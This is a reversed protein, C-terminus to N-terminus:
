GALGSNADTPIPIVSIGQGSYADSLAYVATGDPSVALWRLYYGVFVTTVVKNTSADIVSVTGDGSNATYVFKGDPSVVVGFPDEGVPVATRDLTALDLVTLIGDEDSNTVYLRRGDPSLALGWAPGGAYYAHQPYFLATNVAIVDDDAGDNAFYLYDGDPSVVMQLGINADVINLISNTEADIVYIGRARDAVYVRSGDPSVIVTEPDGSLPITARVEQTDTDIVLLSSTSLITVYLLTGDPSFAVSAPTRGVDINGIVTKTAIDVISVTGDKSNAVYMQKGDLSFAIDSGNVDIIGTVTNSLPKPATPVISIIKVEGGEDTDVFAHTGDGSFAVFNAPLARSVPINGTVANTSTDLVTVTGLTDVIYARRGDPSIEIRLPDGNVRITNAIANTSPDIVTVINSGNSIVYARGTVPNVAIDFPDADLAMTNLIAGTDTDFITLGGTEPILSLEPSIDLQDISYLKKGDPSVAIDFPAIFAPHPPFDGQRSPYEDPMDFNRTVVGTEIDIAVVRPYSYQAVYLTAGDPSIAIDTAYLVPITRTITATNTDIVAVHDLNVTVYVHAGDPSLVMDRPVGGLPIRAIEAGHPDTATDIISLSAPSNEFNAQHLVYVRTGDSNAVIPGPDGTGRLYGIVADDPPTVPATVSVPTSATGDSGVITFTVQKVSPDAGIAAAQLRANLSPTYTWDGTASDVTVRGKAPDPPTGLSYTVVADTTSNVRVSGSVVGTEADPTGIVPSPTVGITVTAVNSTTTGDSVTYTFMDTGTFNENATYTLRGDGTPTVAGHLPGVVVQPTLADGDADNDNDLVAIAVPTDEYTSATDNGATPARNPIVLGTPIVRLVRDKTDTLYIHAGDQSVALLHEGSEPVPDTGYTNIVQKTGTDILSVTDNANAVYVYAGDPSIAIGMPQSGVTIRAVTAKRATDIVSVTGDNNTVYANSGDPSVVVGRPSDGVKVKTVTYSATDIIAVSDDYRTTVYVSRGDPSVDVGLPATGVTVRRLETRRVTDVVSVTTSGGNTVYLFKGDPSVAIGTPAAGVRINAVVTKTQTDIVAVSNNAKTTVYLQAGDPSVALATPTSAVSIKAATNTTVDIVSITKDYENAVYVTNGSVAVGGPDRGVAIDYQQEDAVDLALSTLMPTATSSEPEEEGFQRRLALLALMAPTQPPAVPADTNPLGTLASLVNAM